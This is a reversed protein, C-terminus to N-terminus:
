QRRHNLCPMRRRVRALEDLDLEATIVSAGEAPAQALIDGWPSIIMSHGYTQRGDPHTGAQNAALVYCQNEIARAKLLVEWHAAGTVKTFASPVTLITAGQAVLTRYLEPFRLDYCISLGIKAEGIDVLGPGAGPIFDDSERYRGKSDSVEVDFLHMKNYCTVEDGTPSYVLCSAHNRGDSIDPVPVSGGVLWSGLTRATLAMWERIEDAQLAAEAQPGGLMAFCEPLVIIDIQQQQYAMLQSEIDALNKAVVRDSCVQVVAAKLRSM